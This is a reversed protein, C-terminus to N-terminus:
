PEEGILTELVDDVSRGLVTELRRRVLHWQGDRLWQVIDGELIKQFLIGVPEETETGEQLMQERLRGALAVLLGYEPGIELELRRRVMAAVAPSRGNTTVAITLDGRRITAPVQFDCEQPADAVNVLAGVRRADDAVQRQVTPANTAAFVLAAPVMRASTYPQACWEIVGKEVLTQLGQVLDPSIVRVRGGAALLGRVKREAVRGGGIVLCLRDRIDLSLPYM